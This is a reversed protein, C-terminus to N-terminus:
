SCRASRWWSGLELHESFDLDFSQFTDYSTSWMSQVLMRYGRLDVDGTFIAFRSQPIFGIGFEDFPEFIADLAPSGPMALQDCAYTELEQRSILGDADLDAISFTKTRSPSALIALRRFDFVLLDNSAVCKIDAQVLRGEHRFNLLRFFELSVEPPLM